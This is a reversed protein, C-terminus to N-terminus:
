YTFMFRDGLSAKDKESIPVILKTPRIEYARGIATVTAGEEVKTTAYNLATATAKPETGDQAKPETGDQAKAEFLVTGAEVTASSGFTAALTLTDYDANAKDIKNVKAGNTGDGIFMGVYALSNKKVKMSTGTTYKEAVEVNIVVTAQRKKFDLVLPTLPPITKVGTLNTLVLNFGGSYRYITEIRCMEPTPKEIQELNYHLGAPM